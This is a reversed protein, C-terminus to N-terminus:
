LGHTRIGSSLGALDRVYLSFFGSLIEGSKKMDQGTQPCVSIRCGSADAAPNEKIRITAEGMPLFMFVAAQM